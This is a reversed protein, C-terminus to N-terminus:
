ELGLDKLSRECAARVHQPEHDTNWLKSTVWLDERSCLGAKLASAIGKGVLEENGYDAACDLHRYGVEIAEHIIAPALEDAIKWTGLGPSPFASGDPLLHASM